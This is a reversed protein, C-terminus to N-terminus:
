ATFWARDNDGYFNTLLDGNAGYFAGTFEPPTVGAITRGFLTKGAIHVDSGLRKRCTWTMVAASSSGEDDGPSFFCGLYPRIGMVAFYNESV